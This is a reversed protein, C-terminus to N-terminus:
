RPGTGTQDSSQRRRARVYRVTFIVAIVLGVLAALLWTGGVILGYVADDYDISTGPGADLSLGTGISDAVPRLLLGALAGVGTALPIAFAWGWLVSGFTPGAAGATRRAAQISRAGLLILVVLGAGASVFMAWFAFASLLTQGTEVLPPIPGVADVTISAAALASLLGTVAMWLAFAPAALVLVIGWLLRGPRLPGRAPPTQQM